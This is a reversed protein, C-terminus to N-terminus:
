RSFELLVWNSTNNFPTSPNLLAPLFVYHLTIDNSGALLISGTSHTGPLPLDQPRPPVITSSNCHLLKMITVRYLLIQYTSKHMFLM